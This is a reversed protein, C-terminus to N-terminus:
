FFFKKLKQHHSSTLVSVLGSKKITGIRTNEKSTAPTHKQPQTFSFIDLSDLFSYPSQHSPSSLHLHSLSFPHSQRFQCPSSSLRSIPLISFLKGPRLKNHLGSPPSARIGFISNPDHEAVKSNGKLPAIYNSM